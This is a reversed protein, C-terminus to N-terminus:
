AERNLILGSRVPQSLWEKGIITAAADLNFKGRSFPRMLAKTGSTPSTETKADWVIERKLKMCMQGLCCVTSSRQAEEANTVTYSPDERAIGELWNLWHDNSTRLRIEPKEIKELLKVDSAMLPQMKGGVSSKPDSATVAEGRMCYLWEGKANIFKIGMPFKDCVHVDTRGRNYSYHLDYHTHVNWLKGGDTNMWECTGWVSDPGDLDKGLGWQAIDLHHAGWNTIMGWGYPALQIWDPRDDIKALDQAHCRTENYVVSPNTPGCWTEFDFGAPVDQRVSSGGEKDCGIGIEVERIEGLRGNRVLECVRAFQSVSRQWSGVQVVRHNRRALDALIRGEHITQTFPKQLWIHKGALIADTALIAHWHDPVCLMVADISPDAFMMHYDAYQAVVAAEGRNKAYWDEIFKAGYARRKADLDCVATFRCRDTHKITRPVDMSHAIRGFGVVGINIKSNATFRTVCGNFLMPATGAALMSQLFSRRTTNM